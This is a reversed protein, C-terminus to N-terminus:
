EDKKKRKKANIRLKELTIPSRTYNNSVGKVFWFKKGVELNKYTGNQLTVNAKHERLDPPLMGRKVELNFYERYERATMEHKQVIHSGIQRYWKGCILCEIKNDAKEGTKKAVWEKRYEKYKLYYNKDRCKSSCFTRYRHGLKNM